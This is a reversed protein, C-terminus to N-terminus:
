EPESRPVAVEADAIRPLDNEVEDNSVAADNEHSNNLVREIDEEDHIHPLADLPLGATSLGVRASCGFM